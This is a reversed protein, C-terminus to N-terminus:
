PGHHIRSVPTSDSLRKLQAAKIFLDNHIFRSLERQLQIQKYTRRALPTISNMIAGMLTFRDKVEERLTSVYEADKLIAAQEEKPLSRDKLLAVLDHHIAELREGTTNRETIDQAAHGMLLAAVVTGVAFAAPPFFTLAAGATLLTLAVKTAEVAVFSRKSLFSPDGGAKAVKVYGSVLASAAGMRVAYSDALFESEGNFVREDGQEAALRAVVDRIMVYRVGDTEKEEALADADIKKLDLVMATNQIYHSRTELNEIGVLQEELQAIAISALLTRGVMDFYSYQHGVEHLTIAALEEPTFTGQFLGESLYIQAPLQTFFGHVAGNEDVSAEADHLLSAFPRMSIKEGELSRLGPSRLIHNPDIQLYQIFAMPRPCAYRLTTIAMGTAHQIVTGARGVALLDGDLADKFTSVLAQYLQPHHQYRLAEIASRLFPSTTDM